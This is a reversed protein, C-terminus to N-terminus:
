CRWNLRVASLSPQFFARWQADNSLFSGRNMQCAVVSVSSGAGQGSVLGFLGSIELSFPWGMCRLMSGDAFSQAFLSQRHGERSNEEPLPRQMPLSTAGSGHNRIQELYWAFM